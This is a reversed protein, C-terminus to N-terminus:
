LIFASRALLEPINQSETQIRDCKTQQPAREFDKIANNVRKVSQLVHESRDCYGFAKLLQSARIAERQSLTADSIIAECDPEGQSAHDRYFSPQHGLRGRIPQSLLILSVFAMSLITTTAM